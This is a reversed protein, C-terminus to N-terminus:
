AHHYPEGKIITFARYLQEAFILKVLQHSFTMKSLSIKANAREYISSDFGYAGGILFTLQNTQVSLKEIYKSFAISDFEKGGEDLLILFDGPKIWKMQMVAEAKMILDPQTSKEKNSIQIEQYTFPTYFKLRKFYEEFGENVFNFHSKGTQILQIKM